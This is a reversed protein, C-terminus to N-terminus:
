WGMYDRIGQALEKGNYVSQAQNPHHKSGYGLKGQPSLSIRDVQAGESRLIQAAADLYRRCLSLSAYPKGLSDLPFDDTMMPGDVLVVKALPYVAMVDRVFAQTARVFGASDPPSSYFDNTGLDVVVLDAQWKSFDWKAMQGPVIQRYLEPILGEKSGDGNQVMGRGSYCLTRSDANLLRAAVGMASSAYDEQKANFKKDAESGLVGYGCTISNGVFEIRPASREQPPKAAHTGNVYFESVVVTGVRAETRKYFEIEHEGPQLNEALTYREEGDCSIVGSKEGDVWVQFYNDACAMRVDLATGQFRVRVGTGSWAFVVEGGALQQVRGEYRVMPDTASLVLWNEAAGQCAMGLLGSWLLGMNKWMKMCDGKMLWFYSNEGRGKATREALEHSCSEVYRM